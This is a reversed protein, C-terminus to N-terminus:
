KKVIEWHGSKDHGIRKLIGKEKLKQINKDIATTSIGIKESMERKTIRPNNSILEIIKIQSEVLGDVLGKTKKGELETLKAQPTSPRKFIVTFVGTSQFM